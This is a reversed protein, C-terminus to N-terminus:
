RGGGLAIVNKIAGAVQVGMIDNTYELYIQLRNNNKPILIEKIQNKINNDETALVLGTPWGLALDKAFSPGSIVAQNLVVKQDPKFNFYTKNSFCSQIAQTPLSLTQEEIGKTLVCIIKDKLIDSIQSFVSLLYQAPIAEFIIDSSNVTEKINTTPVIKNDLKIEPLYIKNTQSDLISKYVAESYCWLSVNYGNKALLQAFATGFAGDGLVGINKKM